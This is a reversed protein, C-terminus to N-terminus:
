RLRPLNMMLITTCCQKDKILLYISTNNRHLYKLFVDHTWSCLYITLITVTAEVNGAMKSNHIKEVNKELPSLIM